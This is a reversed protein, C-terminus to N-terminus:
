THVCLTDTHVCYTYFMQVSWLLLGLPHVLHHAQPLHTATLLGHLHEFAHDLPSEIDGELHTNHTSHVTYQTSHVITHVTQQTNQTSHVITHVTQQTNQTSHVITHVTQQTNLPTYQTYQGSHTSNATHVTRRTYQATYQTTHTGHVTHATSCQTHLKTYRWQVEM